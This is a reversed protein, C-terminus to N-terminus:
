NKQYVCLYSYCQDMSFEEPYYPYDHPAIWYEINAADPDEVLRINATIELYKDQYFTPASTLGFESFFESDSVYVFYEEPLLYDGEWAFVVVSPEAVVVTGEFNDYDKLIIPLDNKTGIDIKSDFVDYFFGSVAIVVLISIICHALIQKKTLVKGLLFFVIVAVVMLYKVFSATIVFFPILVCIFFAENRYEKIKGSFIKYLFPSIMFLFFISEIMFLGVILSQDGTAGVGLL